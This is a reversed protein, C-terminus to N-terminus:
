QAILDVLEEDLVEDSDAPYTSWFDDSDDSDPKQDGLDTEDVPMAIRTGDLDEDGEWFADGSEDAVIGLSEDDLESLSTDSTDDFQGTPDAMLRGSDLAAEEATDDSFYNVRLLVDIPSLFTDDNGDLYYAQGSSAEEGYLTNPLTANTLEISGSRDLAELVLL